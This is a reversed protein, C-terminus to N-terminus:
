APPIENRGDLLTHRPTYKGPGPADSQPKKLFRPASYNIKGSHGGGGQRDKAAAAPSYKGPGVRSVTEYNFRSSSRNGFGEGARSAQKYYSVTNHKAQQVRVLRGGTMRNRLVNWHLRGSEDPEWSYFVAEVENWRGAAPFGINNLSDAFVDFTIMGEPYLEWKRLEPLLASYHGRSWQQLWMESALLSASGRQAAQAADSAAALAREKSSAADAGLGVVGDSYHSSCSIGGLLGGRCQTRSPSAALLSETGATVPGGASADPKGHTTSALTLAALINMHPSPVPTQDLKEAVGSLLSGRPQSAQLELGQRTADRLYASCGRNAV